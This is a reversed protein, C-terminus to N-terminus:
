PYRAGLPADFNCFFNILFHIEDRTNGQVEGLYTQVPIIEKLNFIIEPSSIKAHTGVLHPRM